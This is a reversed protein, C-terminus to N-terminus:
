EFTASNVTTRDTNSFGSRNLSGARNTRSYSCLESSLFGYLWTAAPMNASHFFCLLLKESMAITEVEPSYLRDPAPPCSGSLTRATSNEESKNGVSPTSGANPLPKVAASSLGDAFAVVIRLQLNHFLRKPPSGAIRFWVM